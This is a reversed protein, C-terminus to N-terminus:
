ILNDKLLEEDIYKGSFELYKSHGKMIKFIKIKSTKTNMTKITWIEDKGQKISILKYRMYKAQFWDCDEWFKKWKRELLKKQYIINQNQQMIYEKDNERLM